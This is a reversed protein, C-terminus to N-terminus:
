KAPTLTETGLTTGKVMAWTGSLSGNPQVTYTVVGFGAQSLNGWGVSLINGNLIGVGSYSNGVKWDVQYVSGTPTISVTGTYGGKGGPNTGQVNYVGGVKPSQALGSSSIAAGVLILALFYLKKM